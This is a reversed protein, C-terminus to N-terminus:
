RQNMPILEGGEGSELLMWAADLHGALFAYYLAVYEWTDWANVNVGFELLYRLRELYGARLAEFVDGIPVRKLPLLPEEENPEYYINELDNEDMIAPFPGKGQQKGEWYSLHTSKM